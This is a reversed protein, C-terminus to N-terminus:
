ILLALALTGASLFGAAADRPGPNFPKSSKEYSCSRAELADATRSAKAAAKRAFGTTFVALGRLPRRKFSLGRCSLAALIEEGTDLLEPIMSFSLRM